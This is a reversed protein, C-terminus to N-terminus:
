SREPGALFLKFYQVLRLWDRLTRVTRCAMSPDIAFDTIAVFRVLLSTRLETALPPFGSMVRAAWNPRSQGLAPMPVAVM